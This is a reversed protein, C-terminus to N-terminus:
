DGRFASVAITIDGTTVSIALSDLMNDPIFVEITQVPEIEKEKLYAALWGNSFLVEIEAEPDEAIIFAYDWMEALSDRSESAFWADFILSLMGDEFIYTYHEEMWADYKIIISDGESGLVVIDAFPVTIELRIIDDYEIITEVPEDFVLAHLKSLDDTIRGFAYHRGVAERDGGFVPIIRGHNRLDAEEDDPDEPVSIPIHSSQTDNAEHEEAEEVEEEIENELEQAIEEETLDEEQSLTPSCSSFLFVLLSICLLFKIPLNNLDYM